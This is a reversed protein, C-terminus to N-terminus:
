LAARAEVAELTDSLHHGCTPVPEVISGLADPRVVWQADNPCAEFYRCKVRAEPPDVPQGYGNPRFVVLSM